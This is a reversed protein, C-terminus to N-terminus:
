ILSQFDKPFVPECSTFLNKYHNQFALGIDQRRTLWINNTSLISHMTNYMRHIITSLHFFRTNADGEEIWRSKAKDRWLIEERKLVENLEM